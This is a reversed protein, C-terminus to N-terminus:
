REAPGGTGPAEPWRPIKINRMAKAAEERVDKNPDNDRVKKLAPIANKAKLEGLMRAATRRVMSSPSSLARVMSNVVQTRANKIREAFDALRNGEYETFLHQEAKKRVSEEGDDSAMLLSNVIKLFKKAELGTGSSMAILWLSKVAAGRVKPEKDKALSEALADVAQADRFEGLAVAVAERIWPDGHKLLKILEGVEKPLEFVRGDKEAADAQPKLEQTAPASQPQPVGDCSRQWRETVGSIKWTITPCSRTWTITLPPSGKWTITVPGTSARPASASQRDKPAQRMGAPTATTRVPEPPMMCGSLKLALAGAILLTTARSLHKERM